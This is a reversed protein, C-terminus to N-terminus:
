PKPENRRIHEDILTELYQIEEELKPVDTPDHDECWAKQGEYNAQLNFLDSLDMKQETM